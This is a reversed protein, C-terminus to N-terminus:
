LTIPQWTLDKHFQADNRTQTGAVTYWPTEPPSTEPSDHHTPFRSAEPTDRLIKNLPAPTVETNSPNSTEM